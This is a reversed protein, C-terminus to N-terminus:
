DPDTVLGSVEILYAAEALRACQEKWRDPAFGTIVCNGEFEETPQHHVELGLSIPVGATLAALKQRPLGARLVRAPDSLRALFVSVEPDLKNKRMFASASIRGTEPHHHYELICRYLEDEGDIQVM